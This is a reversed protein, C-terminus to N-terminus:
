AAVTWPGNTAANTDGGYQGAIARELLGSELAGAIFTPCFEFDFAIHDSAM